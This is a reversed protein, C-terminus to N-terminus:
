EDNDDFKIKQGQFDAIKNKQQLKAAWSPHLKSDTNTEEPGGKSTQKSKSKPKFDKEPKKGKSQHDTAATSPSEENNSDFKIKQGQFTKNKSQLKAAWSPHVSQDGDEKVAEKEGSSQNNANKNKEAEKVAAKRKKIREFRARRELTRKKRREELQKASLGGNQIHKANKGYMKEALRRRAVQGLRNKKKKVKKGLEDVEEDSFDSFGGGDEEDDTFVLASSKVGVFSDNDSVDYDDAYADSDDANLSSVFYSEAKSNPGSDNSAKKAASRKQQATSTKPLPEHFLKKFFLVLDERESKIADQFAKSSSIKPSLQLNTEHRKEAVFSALELETLKGQLYEDKLVYSFFVFEVMKVHDLVKMETLETELKGVAAADEKGEAKIQKLRKTANKVATAKVNKMLKALSKCRVHHFKTEVKQRRLAVIQADADADSGILTDLKKAFKKSKVASKCWPISTNKGTQTTFNILVRLYVSSYLIITHVKAELLSLKLRVNKDMPTRTMILWPTLTEQFVYNIEM